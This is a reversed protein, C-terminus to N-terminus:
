IGKIQQIRIDFLDVYPLFDKLFTYSSTTKPSAKSNKKPRKLSKKLDMTSLFDLPTSNPIEGCVYILDSKGNRNMTHM